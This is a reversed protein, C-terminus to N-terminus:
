SARHVRHTWCLERVVPRRAEVLRDREEALVRARDRAAVAQQRQHLEPSAVGAASTSMPCTGPSSPIECSFPPTTM